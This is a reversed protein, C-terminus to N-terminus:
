LAIREGEGEGEGEPMYHTHIAEKTCTCFICRTENMWDTAFTCALIIIIIIIFLLSVLIIMARYYYYYYNSYYYKADNNNSDNDNDIHTCLYTRTDIYTHIYIHNFHTYKMRIYVCVYYKKRECVCVREREWEGERYVFYVLLCHINCRENIKKSGWERLADSYFIM